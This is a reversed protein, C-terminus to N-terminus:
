TAPITAFFLNFPLLNVIVQLLQLTTYIPTRLSSYYGNAESFFCALVNNWSIQQSLFVSNQSFLYTSFYPNYSTFLAEHSITGTLKYLQAHTQPFCKLALRSTYPHDMSHFRGRGM